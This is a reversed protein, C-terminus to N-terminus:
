EDVYQQGTIDVSSDTSIDDAGIALGALLLKASMMQEMLCDFQNQVERLAKLDVISRKEERLRSKLSKIRTNQNERVVKRKM